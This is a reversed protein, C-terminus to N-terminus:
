ITAQALAEAISIGLRAAEAELKEWDLAPAATSHLRQVPFTQASGCGMEEDRLDELRSGCLRGLDWCRRCLGEEFLPRMCGPRECSNGMRIVPM